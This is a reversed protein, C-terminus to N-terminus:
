FRYKARRRALTTRIFLKYTFLFLPSLAKVRVASKVIPFLSPHRVVLSFIRQLNEVQRIEKQTLISGSAFFGQYSATGM